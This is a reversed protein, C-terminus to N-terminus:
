VRREERVLARLDISGLILPGDEPVIGIQADIPWDGIRDERGLVLRADAQLLDGGFAEGAEVQGRLAGIRPGGGRRVGLRLPVHTRGSSPTLSVCVWLLVCRTM